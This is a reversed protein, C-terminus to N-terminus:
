AKKASGFLKIKSDVVDSINNIAYGLYDRPDFDQPKTALHQRVGATFALRLDTDINIKSIGNKIALKIQSNPVGNANDLKAGYKNAIDLYKKPVESAGHLVIPIKLIQNIKKLIDIRLKPIGKFKHAGHSTGIAIALSDVGTLEVFEKAENPETYIHVESGFDEEYGALVGLEGEVSVGKNAALRVVKKTNKVNDKFPLSSGDIMVSTFGENICRKIMNMNKGHDLHLAIPVKSIKAATHVMSVMYDFGAYKIASETAAIIAPSKLKVCSNIVAELYELNNINFAGVAYKGAKAKTLINKGTVLVM